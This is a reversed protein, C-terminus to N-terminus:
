IATQPDKLGNGTLVAVIKSGQKITGEKCQQIVGAISACSGPEAFVGEQQAIRKYADIIEEDTVSQIMGNSEDRAETAINWSAPNGNRIATAVTEPQEIVKNTKNAAAREEEFGII